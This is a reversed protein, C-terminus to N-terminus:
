RWEEMKLCLRVCRQLSITWQRDGARILLLKGVVMMMRMVGGKLSVPCVDSSGEAEGGYRVRPSRTTRRPSVARRHARPSFWRWGQDSLQLLPPQLSGSPYLSPVLWPKQTKGEHKAQLPKSQQSGSVASIKFNYEKSPDFDEILLKAEQKPVEVERQEGGTGLSSLFFCEPIISM